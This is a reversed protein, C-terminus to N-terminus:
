PQTGAIASEIAARIAAEKNDTCGSLLYEGEYVDDFADVARGLMAANVIVAAADRADPQPTTLLARSNWAEIARRRSDATAAEQDNTLTDHRVEPGDACCGDFKRWRFTSGHSVSAVVQGGCFPCPLLAADLAPANM